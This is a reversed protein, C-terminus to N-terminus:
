TERQSQRDAVGLQHEICRRLQRHIRSLNQYIADLTRNV